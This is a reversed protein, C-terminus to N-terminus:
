TLQSPFVLGLYLCCWGRPDWVSCFHCPPRFLLEAEQYLSVLWKVSRGGPKGVVQSGVCVKSAKLPKQDPAGDCCHCLDSAHYLHLSTPVRSSKLEAGGCVCKKLVPILSPLAQFSLRKGFFAMYHWCTASQTHSACICYLGAKSEWM